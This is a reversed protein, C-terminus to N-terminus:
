MALDGPSWRRRLHEGIRNVAFVTLFMCVGPAVVVHPHEDFREQGAAILNGWTPNPRQISLGLFSLSAEAVMLVAVIVITYSLLPLVVNPVIERALVRRDRAGMARAATVYERQSVMLANARALRVYTPAALVALGITVNLVSAQLVAVMALLLILPPFALTADTLLGISQEVAGRWYGAVVGISGGILAGLAAAGFGVILSVRAGYIVGGLLDLGQRDTGLPHSSFVDPRALIPEDLAKSADRAEALPLVDAFVAALVLVALWAVALWLGLRFTRGFAREGAVSAAVGV